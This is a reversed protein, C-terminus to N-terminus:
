AHIEDGISSLSFTTPREDQTADDPAPDESPLTFYFGLIINNYTVTDLMTCSEGDDSDSDKPAKSAKSTTHGGPKTRFSIGKNFSAYAM